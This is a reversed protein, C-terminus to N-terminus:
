ENNNKKELKLQKFKWMFLKARNRANADVVFSRAKELIGRNENKAMKIYLAKHKLDDLEVALRYGYDQFEQTIYGKGQKPQYDDFLGKASTFGM